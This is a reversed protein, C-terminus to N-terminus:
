LDKAIDPWRASIIEATLHQVRLDNRRMKRVHLLASVVGDRDSNMLWRKALKRIRGSGDTLAWAAVKPADSDTVFLLHMVVEFRVMEHRSALRVMLLAFRKRVTVPRQLEILSRVAGLAASADDHHLSCHTLAELVEDTDFAGLLRAAAERAQATPASWMARMLVSVIDFGSVKALERAAKQAENPNTGNLLRILGTVWERKLRLVTNAPSRAFLEIVKGKEDESM